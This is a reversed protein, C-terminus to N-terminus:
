SSLMGISHHWKAWGGKYYWLALPDFGLYYGTTPAVGGTFMSFDSDGTPTTVVIPMGLSGITTGKTGDSQEIIIRDTTHVTSALPLSNILVLHPM